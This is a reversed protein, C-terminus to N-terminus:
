GDSGHPSWTDQDAPKDHAIVRIRPPAIPTRNVNFHGHFQAWASLRPNLRSGRLLNLTIVAQEVLCDWLHLPFDKDVSCLGAIFHNKFTQIAHEAANRRHTGPPVLQYDINEKNLFTKLTTSNENNLRTLKPKLGACCLKTHVTKYASMIDQARRSKMPEALILNSNYYYLIFLYNNGNSSPFTFKGTQDSYVQGTIETLTAYCYHSWADTLVKPFNNDPNAPATDTKTSKQNKRAQDM